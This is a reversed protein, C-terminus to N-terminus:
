SPAWGFNVKVCLWQMYICVKNIQKNIYKNIKYVSTVFLNESKFASEFGKLHVIAYDTGKTFNSFHIFKMFPLHLTALLSIPDIDGDQVFTVM